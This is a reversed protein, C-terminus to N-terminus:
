SAKGLQLVKVGPNLLYREHVGAEKEELTCNPHQELYFPTTGDHFKLSYAPKDSNRVKQTVTAVYGWFDPDKETYTFFTQPIALVAGVVNAQTLVSTPCVALLADAETTSVARRM